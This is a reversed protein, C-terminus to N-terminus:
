ASWLTIKKDVKTVAQNIYVGCKEMQEDTSFTSVFDHLYLLILLFKKQLSIPLFLLRWTLHYLRLAKKNILYYIVIAQCNNTRFDSIILDFLLIYLAYSRVRRFVGSFYKPVDNDIMAIGKLISSFHMKFNM